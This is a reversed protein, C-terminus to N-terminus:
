RSISPVDVTQTENIDVNKTTLWTRAKVYGQMQITVQKKRTLGYITSAGTLMNALQLSFNMRYSSDSHAQIKIRDPTTLTGLYIGDVIAKLNLEHVTFGVGSPNEVGINASFTVMNNEMGKFVFGDAGTLRINEVGKCGGSLVILVVVSLFILYRRIAIM